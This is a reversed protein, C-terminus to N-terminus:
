DKYFKIRENKHELNSEKNEIDGNSNLIKYSDTEIQKKLNRDFSDRKDNAFNKINKSNEIIGTYILHNDVNEDLINTNKIKDEKNFNNINFTEFDNISKPDM